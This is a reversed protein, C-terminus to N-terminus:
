LKLYNTILGKANTDFIIEDNIKLKQRKRNKCYSSKLCLYYNCRFESCWVIAVNHQENFSRIIGELNKLYLILNKNLMDFLTITLVM